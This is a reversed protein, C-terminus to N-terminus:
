CSLYIFLFLAVDLLLKLNNLSVYQLYLMVMNQRTKHLAYLKVHMCWIQDDNPFSEREGKM